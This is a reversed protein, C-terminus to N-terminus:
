PNEGVKRHTFTQSKAVQELLASLSKDTNAFAKVVAETACSTPALQSGEALAWNLMNKSFCADFGPSMAIKSQMDVADTATVNDFLAPLTVAPDIPRGQPDETRHRGIIDYTDLALGYADFVSHCGMCTPTETRYASRERESASNLKLGAEEILKTLEESEPFPPNTQCLLAKNIALGRM